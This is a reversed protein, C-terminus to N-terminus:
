RLEADVVFSKVTIGGISLESAQAALTARAQELTDKSAKGRRYDNADWETGSFWGAVYLGYQCHNDRLYRNVLQDEMSTYIASNWNAKVEIIATIREPSTGRSTKPFVAVYIDTVQGQRGPSTPRIEVERGLFLLHQRLDIELHRKICDSMYPESRPLYKRKDRKDWLDLIAPTEDHLRRQWVNLSEILVNLLDGGDRILRAETNNALTLIEDPCPPRWTQTRALRQADALIWKIGVLQPFEAEIRQIEQVAAFTGKDRISGLVANRLDSIQHRTTIATLHPGKDYGPDESEPFHHQLWIYLDALRSESLQQGLNMERAGDVDNVIAEILEVGFEPESQIRQWITPWCDVAAHQVLERAAIVVTKRAADNHPLQRPILSLAYNISEPSSHRLLIDLLRGRSAAQLLLTKSTDLLVTELRLDWCNKIWGLRRLDNNQEDDRAIMKPITDAVVDPVRTYAMLSLDEQIRQETVGNQGICALVVPAWKGWVDDSLEALATPDQDLLLRMARYGAYTPHHWVHPQLMMDIDPAEQNLYDFAGATIRARIDDNAADWGPLQTLDSEFEHHYRIGSPELGLVLTLEWWKEPQGSEILEILRQVREAPPPDLLPREVELSKQHEHARRFDERMKEAEPSSIQVAGLLYSVRQRLVDSVSAAELIANCQSSDRIDFARTILKAWIGEKDPISETNLQEIMWNFDRPRLLRPRSYLLHWPEAAASLSGVIFLTLQRRKEDNDILEALKTGDEAFQDHHQLRAWIAKALATLVSPTAAHEVAVELIADILQEHAFPLHFKSDQREVWGLAQPIDEVRLGSILNIRLFRDYGGILHSENTTIAEFMEKATLHEPWTAQLGYGRLENDPDPGALGLALPKLTKRTSSDGITVIAAAANVRDHMPQTQDLAVEALENQLASVKCAEAIDIAVRRVVFNKSPDVIYPRLQEAIGVHCLKRYHSHHDWGDVLEGTDFLHLLEAVIASQYDPALSTLDGYLLVEPDVKLMEILIEHRMTSLWAAIERLQPVIKKDEPHTLLSMIQEITLEHSALYEATLYEGFTQHAFGLRNPGRASFLATRLAEKIVPQTATVHTGDKAVEDGGSIENITLDTEPTDGRDLRHGIAVRNSLFQIAAIRAAVAVRQEASYKGTLKATQRSSNTEECLLRCGEEYLEVQTSPFSGKRQFTKLLFDLTVPRFALPAAERLSIEQLFIEPDIGSMDAATVVDKRRLPAIEVVDIQDDPWLKRLEHELINPWDATRCAIRLALRDAPLESFKAALRNAVTNINELCEDLSDLFLVLHSDGQLWHKFDQTEFIEQMLEHQTQYNKLDFNLVFDGKGSDKAAKIAAAM